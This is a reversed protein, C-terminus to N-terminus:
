IKELVPCFSLVHMILEPPLHPLRNREGAALIATHATGLQRRRALTTKSSRNWFLTRLPRPVTHVVATYQSQRLLWGGTEFGLLRGLHYLQFPQGRRMSALTAGCLRPHDGFRATWSSVAPDGPDWRGLRLIAWLGEILQLLTQVDGPAKGKHLIVDEQAPDWTGGAAVMRLLGDLADQRVCSNPGLKILEVAVSWTTNVESYWFWSSEM